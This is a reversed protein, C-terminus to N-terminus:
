HFFYRSRNVLQIDLAGRKPLPPLQLEPFRRQISERLNELIPFDYLEIFSERL